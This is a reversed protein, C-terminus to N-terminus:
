LYALLPTCDVEFGDVQIAGGLRTYAERLTLTQELMIPVYPPPVCMLNQMQILKTGVENATFPGVMELLPDADFLM